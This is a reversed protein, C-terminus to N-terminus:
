FLSLNPWNYTPAATPAAFSSSISLATLSTYDPQSTSTTSIAFPCESTATLATLFSLSTKSSRLISITAPDIAVLSPASYNILAPASPM